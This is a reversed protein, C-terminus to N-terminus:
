PAFPQSSPTPIRRTDGFRSCRAPRQRERFRLEYAGGIAAGPRADPARRNEREVSRRARAPREFDSSIRNTADVYAKGVATDAAAATAAPRLTQSLEFDSSILGGALTLANSMGVADLQTANFLARFYRSRAYDSELRQIEDLVGPVGRSPRSDAEHAIGRGDRVATALTLLLARWGDSRRM